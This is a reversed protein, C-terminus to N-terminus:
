LCTFREVDSSFFTVIPAALNYGVLAKMSRHEPLVQSVLKNQLCKNLVNTGPVQSLGPM